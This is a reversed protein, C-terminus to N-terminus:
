YMAGPPLDPTPKYDGSVQNFANDLYATKDFEESFKTKLEALKKKIKSRLPEPPNFPTFGGMKIYQLTFGM